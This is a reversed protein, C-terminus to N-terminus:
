NLVFFLSTNGYRVIGYRVIGYRVICQPVTGYRLHKTRDTRFHQAACRKPNLSLEPLPINSLITDGRSLGILMSLIICDYLQYSIIIYAEITIFNHGFIALTKQYILKVNM